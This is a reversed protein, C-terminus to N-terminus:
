RRGTKTKSGGSFSAKKPQPKPILAILSRLAQNVSQSDPFYERVDPELLIAGEELTYYQVTVTGDAERIRVTHGQQNAQHYKGRVGPKGSFDYESLMPEEPQDQNKGKKM